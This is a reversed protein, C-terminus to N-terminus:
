SGYIFEGRKIPKLMINIYSIHTDRKVIMILNLKYLTNFINIFRIVSFLIFM